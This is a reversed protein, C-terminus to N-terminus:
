KVDDTNERQKKRALFDAVYFFLCILSVVAGLLVLTNSRMFGVIFFAIVSILTLIVAIHTFVSNEKKVPFSLLILIAGVVPGIFATMSKKDATIYGYVGLLILVLGNFIMVKYNKMKKM